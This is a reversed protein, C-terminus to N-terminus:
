KTSDNSFSKALENLDFRVFAIVHRRRARSNSLSLSVTNDRDRRDAEM